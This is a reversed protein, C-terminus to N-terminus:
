LLKVPVRTGGIIRFLRFPLCMNGWCKPQLLPDACYRKNRNGDLSPLCAIKKGSGFANRDCINLCKPCWLFPM